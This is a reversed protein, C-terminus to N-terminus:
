VPVSVVDLSRCSVIFLDLVGYLQQLIIAIVRLGIYHKYILFSVLGAIGYFLCPFKQIGCIRSM